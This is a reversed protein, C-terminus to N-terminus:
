QKFGTLVEVWEDFDFQSGSMALRHATEAIVGAAKVYLKMYDGPTLKKESADFQKRNRLYMALRYLFDEQDKTYKYGGLENNLHINDPTNNM